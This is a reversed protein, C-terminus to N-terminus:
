KLVHSRQGGKTGIRETGIRETGNENRETGGEGGGRVNATPCNMSQRSAHGIPQGRGRHSTAPRRDTTFRRGSQTRNHKVKRSRARAEIRIFLERHVCFDKAERGDNRSTDHRTTVHRSKRPRGRGGGDALKRLCRSRALTRRRDGRREIGEHGVVGM